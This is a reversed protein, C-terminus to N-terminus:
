IDAPPCRPNKGNKTLRSMFNEPCKKVGLNRGWLWDISSYTTSPPWKSNETIILFASLHWDPMSTWKLRSMDNMLLQLILKIYGNALNWGRRGSWISLNNPSIIVTMKNKCYVITKQWGSLIQKTYSNIYVHNYRDSLLTSSAVRKAWPIINKLKSDLM